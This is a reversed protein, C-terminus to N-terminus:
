KPAAVPPALRPTNFWRSFWVPREAWAAHGFRRQTWADVADAYKQLGHLHDFGADGLDQLRFADRAFLPEDEFVLAMARLVEGRISREELQARLTVPSALGRALEQACEPSGVYALKRALRAKAFYETAAAFQERLAREAERDGLRARVDDPIGPQALWTAKTEADLELRAFLRLTTEGPRAESARRLVGRQFNLATRKVQWTLTEAAFERVAASDDDLAVALLEIAARSEVFGNGPRHQDVTRRVVLELEDDALKPTRRDLGGLTRELWQRHTEGGPGAGSSEDDVRPAQAPVLEGRHAALHSLLRTNEAASMSGLLGAVLLTVLALRGPAPRPDAPTGPGHIRGSRIM